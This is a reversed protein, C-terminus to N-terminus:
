ESGHPLWVYTTGENGLYPCPSTHLLEPVQRLDYLLPHRLKPKFVPRKGLDMMALVSRPRFSDCKREEKRGKQGEEKQGEEKGGEREKKKRKKHGETLAFLCFARRNIFPFRKKDNKDM